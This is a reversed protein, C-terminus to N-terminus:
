SLDLLPIAGSVVNSKSNALPPPSQSNQILEQPSVSLLPIDGDALTPKSGVRNRIPKVKADTDNPYTQYPQNALKM